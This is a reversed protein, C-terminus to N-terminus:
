SGSRPRPTTARADAGRRDPRRRRRDARAGRDARPERLRVRRRRDQRRPRRHDARRDDRRRRQPRALDRNNIGIVDADITSRGSSIEEDHVEVLCDLDLARAEDTSCRRPGRRRAGRRDAAGRRRRAVAAEYLQYPDVIFDKRLIPLDSAARAARLDHSRAASTRARRHPGLARGRRRARLRRRDRRRRRRPPDRGGSPSRRKFEAILSLGPRVLAENFPRSATAPASGRRPARQRPCRAVAGASSRERRAADVLQDLTSM